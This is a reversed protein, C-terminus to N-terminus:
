NIEYTEDEDLEVVYEEVQESGSEDEPLMEGASSDLETGAIGDEGAPSDTKKGNQFVVALAIVFIIILILLIGYKKKM